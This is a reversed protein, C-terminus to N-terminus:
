AINTTCEPQPNLNHAVRNMLGVLRGSDHRGAPHRSVSGRSFDHDPEIGAILPRGASGAAKM